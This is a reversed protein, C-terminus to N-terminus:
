LPMPMLINAHFCRINKHRLAPIILSNLLGSLIVNGAQRVTEIFQSDGPENSRATFFIDFNILSVGLSKLLAVMRGHLSRIGPGPESRKCVQIKLASRQFRLHLTTAKRLRFRYDLTKEEWERFSEQFFYEALLIVGLGTFGLLISVIYRNKIPIRLIM